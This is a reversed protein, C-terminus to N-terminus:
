FINNTIFYDNIINYINDRETKELEDTEYWMWYLDEPIDSRSGGYFVTDFMIKDIKYRDEFSM